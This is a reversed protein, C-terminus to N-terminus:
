PNGRLAEPSRGGSRAPLGGKPATESIAFADRSEAETGFFGQAAVVVGVGTLVAGATVLLPDFAAQGSLISLAGLTFCSGALGAIGLNRRWSPMGRPQERRSPAGDAM